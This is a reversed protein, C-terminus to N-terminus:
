GPSLRPGPSQNLQIGAKAPIVSMYKNLPEKVRFSGKGFPPEVLVAAWAPKVEGPMFFISYALARPYLILWNNWTPPRPVNM